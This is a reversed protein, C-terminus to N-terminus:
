GGAVPPFLCITDGDDIKTEFGELHLINRGNKLIIVMHKLEGDHEFIRGHLGKHEKCLSDLLTQMNEDGSLTLEAKKELFDRLHAFAKLTIRIM